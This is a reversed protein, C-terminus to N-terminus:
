LQRTYIFVIIYKCFILILVIKYLLYAFSELYSENHAYDTTYSFREFLGIAMM